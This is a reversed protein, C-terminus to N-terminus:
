SASKLLGRFFASRKPFLSCAQDVLNEAAVAKGLTMYSEIIMTYIEEDAYGEKTSQLGLEIIRHPEQDIFDHLLLMKLYVPEKRFEPKVQNLIEKSFDYRKVDFFPRAGRAGFQATRGNSIHGKKISEFGEKILGKKIQFKGCALMGATVIKTLDESKRDLEIYKQYYKDVDTYHHTYVALLIMKGLRQPTVPFHQGITQIVKYADKIKGLQDLSEFLGVLCKYHLQFTKLGEKFSVVAEREKGMESLTMGKYYCALAPKDSAEIADEFKDLATEYEKEALMARGELILQYSRPPNLKRIGSEAMASQLKQPSFPKIIYGDVEEEAAEAVATDSANGTVLVFVKDTPDKIYKTQEDILDLGYSNNIKYESIIVEPQKEAIATVAMEYSHAMSINDKKFGLESISKVISNAIGVSSEVVIAKKDSYYQIVRPDVESM